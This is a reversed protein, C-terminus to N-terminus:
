RDHHMTRESACAILDVSRRQPTVLGITGIWCWFGWVQSRKYGVTSTLLDGGLLFEM